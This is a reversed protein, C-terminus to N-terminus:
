CTREVWGGTLEVVTSIPRSTMAFHFELNSNIHVGYLITQSM